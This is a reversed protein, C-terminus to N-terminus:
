YIGNLNVLTDNVVTQSSALASAFMGVANAREQVTSLEDFRFTADILAVRPVKPVSVGNVTENVLIPVTLMVRQYHKGKSKRWRISLLADGIASSASERFTFVGTDGTHPEFSHAVPTPSTRDNVTIVAAQAM